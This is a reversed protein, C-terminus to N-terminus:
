RSLFMAWWQGSLSRISDTRSRRESSGMLLKSLRSIRKPTMPWTSSVETIYEPSNELYNIMERTAQIEHDESASRLINRRLRGKGRGASPMGLLSQWQDNEPPVDCRLRRLLHAQQVSISASAKRDQQTLGDVGPSKPFGRQQHYLSQQGSCRVREKQAM